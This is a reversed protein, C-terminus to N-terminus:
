ASFPIIWQILIYKKLGGVILSNFLNKDFVLYNMDGKIPTTNM